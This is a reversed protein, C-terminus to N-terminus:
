ELSFRITTIVQTNVTEGEVTGPSFRWAALCRKVCKEFVGEPVAKVIKINEVLGKRNVLFKVKVWGEIGMSKARMPYVPQVQVIPVLTGDIEGIEYFDKLGIDSFDFQVAPPSTLTVPGSPIKANIEFPIKEIKIKKHFLPKQVSLLKTKPEIKKKQKEPPPKRPPKIRVMNVSLYMDDQVRKLSSKGVLSPMISFLFINFVLSGAIGAFWLFLSRKKSLIYEM